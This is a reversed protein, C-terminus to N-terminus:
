RQLAASCRKHKQGTAAASHQPAQTKLEAACRQLPLASCRLFAQLASACLASSKLTQLAASCRSARLAASQFFHGDRVGASHLDVLHGEFIQLKRGSTIFEQVGKQHTNKNTPIQSYIQNAARGLLGRGTGSPIVCPQGRLTVWAHVCNAFESEILCNWRIPKLHAPPAM